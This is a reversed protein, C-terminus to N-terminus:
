VSYITPLTLHTYSVPSRFSTVLSINEVSLDYVKWGHGRDHLSFALPIAPADKRLLDVNVTVRKADPAARLPKWETNVSDHYDLMARAYTQVLSSKFANEFRDRQEKTAKKWNRGLVLRAIAKTDFHPVVVEDVVSFFLDLDQAYAEHNKAILDQFQTTAGKVLEDPPVAADTNEAATAGLSVLLGLCAGLLFRKM